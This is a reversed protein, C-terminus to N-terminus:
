KCSDVSEGKHRKASQSDDQNQTRSMLRPIRKAKLYSMTESSSRTPKQEALMETSNNETSNSSTSLPIFQYTRNGFENNQETNETVISVIRTETELSASAKRKIEAEPKATKVDTNNESKPKLKGDQTPFNVTPLNITKDGKTSNMLKILLQSLEERKRTVIIEEFWTKLTKIPLTYDIIPDQFFSEVYQLVYLGCDTFNSQQPVKPCAGKITDKSFTKEVGLKALHECSLYDRLTAVVRARSAGALSDFILICPMKVTEKQPEVKVQVEVQNKKEESQDDEEEEEESYMEMEEDDGEAEDRESGDDLQDITITTPVPTITTSGITVAKAKLEKLKKSKQAAKNVDNENTKTVCTSIKGVLGPFCIIALFWHAHENIPIIIFDKEFINVNKTWKQVRAHRKAAPTMPVNSEAAQAHPSTLRKYFYSSFVHTRQQDSESLVELTLYKLYFDIIVDNLFQDEALCLYDETNIAIGGKAPPPPYVTITQICETVGVSNPIVSGQVQKKVVDQSQQNDRPSARILIDNAEKPNLEEIKGGRAFLLKLTARSDDPLKEPLLTIRKHTQDKGAPDYYPGKPDQMGLLERIMAGTKTSTYFFLVPMGKGYHILLKVIDQYKVDLTVFSTVDELLPVSFRVGNYTIVVKERPYYKYSGIRVTRCEIAIQTLQLQENDLFSQNDCIGKSSEEINALFDSYSSFVSTNTIVPEKDLITDMDEPLANSANGPAVSNNLCAVKKTRGEEEEDSSITLCEPEKHIPKPKSARGKGKPRKCTPGDREIKELKAANRENNKKYFMDVSMGTEKRERIPISKVDESFKTNCRECRNFYLSSYGCHSCLALMGKVLIPEESTSLSTNSNEDSANTNQSLNDTSSINEQSNCDGHDSNDFSGSLTGTGVDVIYNINLSSDNVLSVVTKSSLSISVQDLLDQVTCDENPIDFGILRQERMTIVLMKATNGKVQHKVKTNAPDHIVKQFYVISENPSNQELRSPSQQTRNGKEQACEAPNVETSTSTVHTNHETSSLRSTVASSKQQKQPSISVRQQVRQQVSNSTVSRRTTNSLSSQVSQQSANPLQRQANNQQFRQKEIHQKQLQKLKAYKIQETLYKIDSSRVPAKSIEPTKCIEPPVIAVPRVHSSTSIPKITINQEQSGIVKSCVSMGSKSRAINSNQVRNEMTTIVNVEDPTQSTVGVKVSNTLPRTKNQCPKSLKKEAQGSNFSGSNVNISSPSTINNQINSRTSIATQNKEQLLTSQKTSTTSNANQMKIWQVQQGENKCETKAGINDVISVINENVHANSTNSKLIGQTTAIDTTTKIIFVNQGQELRTATIQNGLNITQPSFIAQRNQPTATYTVLQQSGNGSNNVNEVVLQVRQGDVTCIRPVEEFTLAGGANTVLNYYQAM